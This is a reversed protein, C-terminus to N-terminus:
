APIFLVCVETNASKPLKIDYQDNAANITVEAKADYVPIGTGPQFVATMKTQSVIVQPKKGGWNVGDFKM